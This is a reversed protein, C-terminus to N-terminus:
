VQTGAREPLRSSQRTLAMAYPVDAVKNLKVKYPLTAYSDKTLRAEPDDYQGERLRLWVYENKPHVECVRRTGLWYFIGDRHTDDVRLDTFERRIAGDFRCVFERVNASRGAVLDGILAESMGDVREARDAFM